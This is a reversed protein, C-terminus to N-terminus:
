CIWTATFSNSQAACTYSPQHTLLIQAPSSMNRQLRQGWFPKKDNQCHSVPSLRARVDVTERTLTESMLPITRSAKSLNTLRIFPCRLRLVVTFIKYTTSPLTYFGLLWIITESSNQKSIVSWCILFINKFCIYLKLLTNYCM